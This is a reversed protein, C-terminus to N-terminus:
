DTITGRIGIWGDEMPFIAPDIVGVPVITDEPSISGRAFLIGYDRNLPQPQEGPRQFAFHVAHALGAPYTEPDAPKTYVTFMIEQM